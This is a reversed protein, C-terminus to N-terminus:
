ERVPISAAVLTGGDVASEVRLWGDLVALRDHTGLLGHGGPRAKTPALGAEAFSTRAAQVVHAAVM